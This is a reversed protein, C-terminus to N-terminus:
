ALGALHRVVFVTGSGTTLFTVVAVLSVPSLRGLGCVGHGSTCGHGLATGAGVALGGAAVLWLSLVVHPGGHGLATWVIGGLVLGVLFMVDLRRDPDGPFAASRVMGSIGAYRGLTFLYLTAAVGILVGGILAPVPTFNSVHM